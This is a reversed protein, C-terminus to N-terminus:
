LQGEIVALIVHGLREYHEVELVRRIENEAYADELEQETPPQPELETM